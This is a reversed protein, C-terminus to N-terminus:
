AVQVTGMASETRKKYVVVSCGRVKRMETFITELKFSIFSLYASVIGPIVPLFMLFPTTAFNAIATVAFAWKAWAFTRGRKLQFGKIVVLAICAEITAIILAAILEAIKPATDENRNMLNLCFVPFLIWAIFQLALSVWLMIYFLRYRKEESELLAYHQQKSADMAYPNSETRGHDNYQQYDQDSM